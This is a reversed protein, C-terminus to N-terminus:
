VRVGGLALHSDPEVQGFELVVRLGVGSAPTLLSVKAGARQAYEWVISLGLGSGQSDLNDLRFFRDFVKERAEEPIGPGDDEVAITVVGHSDSASVIVHGGHRGYRVGNDVLNMLIERLIVHRIRVSLAPNVCELGLQVGKLQAPIALSELVEQIVGCVNIPNPSHGELAPASAQATSLSLLQNVLRTASRLTNIAAHLSEQRDKANSELRVAFALQTNLVAFPTRLQHAANQIFREQSGVYERLRVIYDNLADIMPLLEVSMTPFVLPELTGPKRQMLLKRLSQIPQLERNLGFVIMLLTLLLIIVLPAVSNTWLNLTLVTLENRTQAVEVFVISPNNGNILPQQIVVARVSNGRMTTDFFFPLDRILETDARPLETYGSLLVGNGIDIRYYVHDTPGTAFLELAAPPIEHVINNEDSYIQEAIMRASGLLLRDQIQQATKLASQYTTWSGVIVAVILPVFVWLLLHFRLSPQKRITTERTRM